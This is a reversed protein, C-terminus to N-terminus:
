QQVESALRVHFGDANSGAASRGTFATWATSKAAMAPQVPITSAVAALAVATTDSGGSDAHHHQGTMSAKFGAVHCHQGPRRGACAHHSAKIRAQTPAIRLSVSRHAPSASPPIASRTFPWAAPRHLNARRHGAAYGNRPPPHDSIERALRVDRRPIAAANVVVVVQNGGTKRKSRGDRRRRCRARRRWARGALRAGAAAREGNFTFLQMKTFSGPTWLLDSLVLRLSSYEKRKLVKARSEKRLVM